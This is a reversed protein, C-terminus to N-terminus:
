EERAKEGIQSVVAEPKLPVQKAGEENLQRAAQEQLEAVLKYVRAFALQGLGELILNAQDLNVRFTIEGM